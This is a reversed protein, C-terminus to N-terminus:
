LKECRNCCGILYSVLNDGIASAYIWADALEMYLWASATRAALDYRQQSKNLIALLNLQFGSDCKQSSKPLSPVSYQSGQLLLM